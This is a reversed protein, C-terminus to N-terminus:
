VRDNSLNDKPLVDDTTPEEPQYALYMVHAVTQRHLACVHITRVEEFQNEVLWCGCRWNWHRGIM